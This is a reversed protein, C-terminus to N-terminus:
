RRAYEAFAYAPTGEGVAEREERGICEWRSDLEPFFADGQPTDQEVETLYLHQALPLAATYIEGGGIVFVEESDAVMQLAAELSSATECGEWQRAQRTIVINRRGPLPKGLSEYTKRGMLVPKGLTHAKFRRLDEPLRWPLKGQIGIARDRGHAAILNIRM